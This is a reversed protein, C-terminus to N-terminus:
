EYKEDQMCSFVCAYALLDLDLDLSSLSSYKTSIGASLSILNFSSYEVCGAGEIDSLLPAIPSDKFFPPLFPVIELSRALMAPNYNYFYNPYTHGLSFSENRRRRRRRRRIRKIALALHKTHPPQQKTSIQFVSVSFHKTFCTTSWIDM